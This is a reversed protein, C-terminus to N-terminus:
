FNGNLELAFRRAPPVSTGGLAGLHSNCSCSSLHAIKFCICRSTIQAIGLARTSQEESTHETNLILYKADNGSPWGGLASRIGSESPRCSGPNPDDHTDMCVICIIFQAVARTDHRWMFKVM